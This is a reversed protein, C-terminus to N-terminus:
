AAFLFVMWCGMSMHTFRRTHLHDKQLFYSIDSKCSQIPHPGLISELNHNVRVARHGSVTLIQRRVLLAQQKGAESHKLLIVFVAQVERCREM